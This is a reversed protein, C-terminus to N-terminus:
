LTINWVGTGTGATICGLRKEVLVVTGFALEKALDAVGPKRGIFASKGRYLQATRVAAVSQDGFFVSFMENDMLTDIRFTGVIQM